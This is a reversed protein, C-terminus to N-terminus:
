KNVPTRSNAASVVVGTPIDLSLDARTTVVDKRRLGKEAPYAM